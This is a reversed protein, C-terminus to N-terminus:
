NLLQKETGDTRIKHYGWKKGYSYYYIWDGVVNVNRVPNADLLTDETGDTRIKYLARPSVGYDGDYYDGEYYVWGGAVNVYNGDPSIAEGAKLVTKETGDTRMKCLNGAKEAYYIWEGVVNIGGIGGVEEAKYILKNGKGDTRVGYLDGYSSVDFEGYSYAEGIYYIMDGSVNLYFPYVGSTLQKKGSGDLRVKYIGTRKDTEGYNDGYYIWGDSVNVFTAFDDFVLTEESGDTRMKYFGFKNANHVDHVYNCYIWGDIINIYSARKDSLKMKQTGDERVKYFCDDNATYYIWGDKKAAYGRNNSNGYAVTEAAPSIKELADIVDAPANLMVLSLVLALINKM